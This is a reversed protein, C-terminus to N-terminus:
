KRAKPHHEKGSFVPSPAIPPSLVVTWLVSPEFAVGGCQARSPVVVWLLSRWGKKPSANSEGRKRQTNLQKGTETQTTSSEWRGKRTTTSDGGGGEESTHQKERIRQTTSSDERMRRPPASKERRQSTSRKEGSLLAFYFLLVKLSPNCWGLSSPLPLSVGGTELSLLGLFEQEQTLPSTPSM